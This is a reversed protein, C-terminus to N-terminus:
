EYFNFDRPLSDEVMKIFESCKLGFANSLKWLTSIRSDAQGNELKSLLGNGIDYEYSFVNIGKNLHKREKRILSGIVRLLESKRANILKTDSEDAYDQM